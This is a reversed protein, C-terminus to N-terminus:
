ASPPSPSIASPFCGAAAHSAASRRRRRHAISSFLCVRESEVQFCRLGHAATAKTGAAAAALRTHASALGRREAAGLRGIPGPRDPGDVHHVRVRPWTHVM